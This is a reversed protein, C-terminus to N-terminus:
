PAESADAAIATEVDAKVPRPPFLSECYDRAAGIAPGPPSGKMERALCEEVSQYGFVNTTLVNGAVAGAVFVALYYGPDAKLRSILGNLPWIYEEGGASKTGQSM